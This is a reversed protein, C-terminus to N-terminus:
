ITLPIIMEIGVSPVIYKVIKKQVTRPQLKSMDDMSTCYCLRVEQPVLNYPILCCIRYLGEKLLRVKDALMNSTGQMQVYEPPDPSLCTCYLDLNAKKVVNIWNSIYEKKLTEIKARVGKDTIAATATMWDFVVSILYGLREDSKCLSV